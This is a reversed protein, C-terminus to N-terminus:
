IGLFPSYVPSATGTNTPPNPCLSQGKYLACWQCSCTLDDNWATTLLVSTTHVEPHWFLPIGLSSLIIGNELQMAVLSPHDSFPVLKSVMRHISCPHWFHRQDPLASSLDLTPPTEKDLWWMCYGPFSCLLILSCHSSGPSRFQASALLLGIEAQQAALPVHAWLGSKSCNRRSKRSAQSNHTRLCTKMEEEERTGSVFLLFQYVRSGTGCATLDPQLLCHRLLSVWSSFKRLGILIILFRPFLGLPLNM